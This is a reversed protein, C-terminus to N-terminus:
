EIRGPSSEFKLLSREIGISQFCALLFEVRIFCAAKEGGFELILYQM